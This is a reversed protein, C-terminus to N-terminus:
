PALLDNWPNLIFKQLQGGELGIGQSAAQGEIITTGPRIQWQTLRSMQNWKPVLAMSQRSAPFTAFLFRGQPFAKINDFYRLGYESNGAVRIGVTEANFSQLWEVRQARSVGQAQLYVSAKRIGAYPNTTLSKLGSVGGLSTWELVPSDTSLGGLIGGTIVEGDPQWANTFAPVRTGAPFICIAVLLLFFCFTGLTQAALPAIAHPLHKRTATM